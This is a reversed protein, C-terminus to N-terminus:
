KTLNKEEKKFAENIEKITSKVAPKWFPRARMGKYLIPREIQGGFTTWYPRRGNYIGTGTELYKGYKVGMYVRQALPNIQARAISQRAKGTRNFGKPAQTSYVSAQINKKATREMFTALRTLVNSIVRKTDRGIQASTKSAIGESTVTINAKM